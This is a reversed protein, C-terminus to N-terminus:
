YDLVAVTHAFLLSCTDPGTMRHGATVPHGSTANWNIIWMIVVAARQGDYESEARRLLSWLSARKISNQRSECVNCRDTWRNYERLSFRRDFWIPMSHSWQSFLLQLMIIACIRTAFHSSETWEQEFNSQVTNRSITNRSISYSYM